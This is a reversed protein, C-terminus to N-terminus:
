EVAGRVISAYILRLFRAFTVPTSITIVGQLPVIPNIRLILGTM